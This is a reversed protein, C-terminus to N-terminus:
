TLFLLMRHTPSGSSMAFVEGVIYALGRLFVTRQGSIMSLHCLLDCPLCRHHLKPLSWKRLQVVLIKDLPANRCRNWYLTGAGELNNAAGRRLHSQEHEWCM